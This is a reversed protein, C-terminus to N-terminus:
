KVVIKENGKIIIGQADDGQRKGQLNYITTTPASQNTSLGGFVPADVGEPVDKVYKVTYTKAETAVTGSEPMGSEYNYGEITPTQLTLSEGTNIVYRHEELLKGDTDECRLTVAVVEEIIWAAGQVHLAPLAANGDINCNGSTIIGPLADMTHAVPVLDRGNITLNYDAYEPRFTINVFQATASAQVPWMQRGQQTNNAGFYKISKSKGNKLKVSQTGDENDKAITVIWDTAAEDDTSHQLHSGSTYSIASPAFRAINNRFRYSKQAELRPMTAKVAAVAAEIAAVDATGAEAQAIVDKLTEVSAASYRGLVAKDAYTPVAAVVKARAIAAELDTPTINMEDIYHRGYQYGGLNLMVTDRRMRNQFDAFDKRSAASWGTEAMCMLRPLAMYEMMDSTGINECWFTGQVGIIHKQEAATLGSPMPDIGYVNQVNDSGDGPLYTEPFDRSQARNIYGRTWPTLMADLGMKAAKSANGWANTWCWVTAGTSAMLETDAGAADISENWTALRHGRKGIHDAVDKNFHSQLARINSLGLDTMKKKCEANSNWADTPCEDGGIHILEGPFIDMIEDLVDRVFQMAGENAVNLVDRSVGYPMLGGHSGGPNCSYEPYAAMCALAHGPFEIEPVIEIHREAAYAVVDRMQEQTYYYPGYPENTWYPGEVRDVMWSNPATAAVSTLKPYKKIEARWGQDDTLHWHFRNMKYVAMLNIIRKLEDVTYFHRSCDLMFGRYKFRPADEITIYPLAYETFRADKVGITVCEPLLKKITVLGYYLGRETPAAIQVGEATISLKYGETGYTAGSLTADEMLTIFAGSTTSVEASYGTAAGNFDAVFKEVDRMVNESLGEGGVTFTSPLSLVGEGREMVAPRPTINIFTFPAEGKTYTFTVEIDRDTVTVKKSLETATYGGVTPATLTFTGSSAIVTSTMTRFGADSCECKVTVVYLPGYAVYRAWDGVASSFDRNNARYNQGATNRFRVQQNAPFAPATGDDPQVFKWDFGKAEPDDSWITNGSGAGTMTEGAYNKVWVLGEKSGSVLCYLYEPSLRDAGTSSSDFSSWDTRQTTHFAFRGGTNKMGNLQEVTLMLGAEQAQAQTQIVDASANGCLGMAALALFLLRKM